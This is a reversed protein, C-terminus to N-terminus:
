RTPKQRICPPAPRGRGPSARAPVSRPPPGVPSPPRSPLRGVESEPHGGGLPRACRPDPQCPRPRIPRVIVSDDSKLHLLTGGLRIRKNAGSLIRCGGSASAPESAAGPLAAKQGCARGEASPGADPLDTQREEARQPGSLVERTEIRAAAAHSAVIRRGGGSEVLLGRRTCAAPESRTARGHRVRVPVRWIGAPIAWRVPAPPNASRKRPDLSRVGM